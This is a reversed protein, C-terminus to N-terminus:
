TGPGAGHLYRRIDYRARTTFIDIRDDSGDVEFYLSAGLSRGIWNSQITKLADSWDIEDLDYLLRDAYATIRLYWQTLAKQEVPHGGRESLGDKVQDNALVTGLAECWNVYGVKRYALRYNMLIEQQEQRDM